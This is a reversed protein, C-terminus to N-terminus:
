SANVCTYHVSLIITQSPDVNSVYVFLTMDNNMPSIMSVLSGVPGILVVIGFNM